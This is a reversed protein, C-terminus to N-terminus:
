KWRTTPPGHSHRQTVGTEFDEAARVQALLASAQGRLATLNDSLAIAALALARQQRLTM